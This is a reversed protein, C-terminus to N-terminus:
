KCLVRAMPIMALIEGPVGRSMRDRYRLNRLCVISQCRYRVLVALFRARRTLLEGHLIVIVTYSCRSSIVLTAFLLSTDEFSTGEFVLLVPAMMGPAHAVERGTLVSAPSVMKWRNSCGCRHSQNQFSHSAHSAFVHENSSPM